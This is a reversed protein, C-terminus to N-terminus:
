GVLLRAARYPTPHTRQKGRGAQTLVLLGASTGYLGVQLVSQLTSLQNWGSAERDLQYVPPSSRNTRSVGRLSISCLSSKLIRSCVVAQSLHKRLVQAEGLATELAPFKRWNALEPRGLADAVLYRAFQRMLKGPRTMVVFRRPSPSFLFSNRMLYARCPSGGLHDRNRRRCFVRASGGGVIPCRPLTSSTRMIVIRIPRASVDVCVPLAGM